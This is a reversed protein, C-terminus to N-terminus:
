DGRLRWNERVFPYQCTLSHTRALQEQISRMRRSSDPILDHFQVQINSCHGVFGVALLHELLDYEGREINIKVLDVSEVRQEAPFRM